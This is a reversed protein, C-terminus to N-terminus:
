VTVFFLVFIYPIAAAWPQWTLVVLCVMSLISGFCMGGFDM